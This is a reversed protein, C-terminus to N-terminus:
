FRECQDIVFQGIIMSSPKPNTQLVSALYNAKGVTSKMKPSALIKQLVCMGRLM